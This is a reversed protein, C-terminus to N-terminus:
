WHMISRQNTLDWFKKGFKGSLTFRDREFKMIKIQIAWELPDLETNVIQKKSKWDYIM